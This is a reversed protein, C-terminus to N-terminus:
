YGNKDITREHVTEFRVARLLEREGLYNRGGFGLSMWVWKVTGGLGMQRPDCVQHSYSSFTGLFAVKRKHSKEQTGESTPPNAM